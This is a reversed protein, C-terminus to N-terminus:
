LPFLETVKKIRYDFIGELQKRIFLWHVFRGIFGLPMRYSIIDTMEVGGEVEKFHHEHHWLKYPGQRQEDIFYDENRLAKIESIWGLPIRLIPRITYRIILGEYMEDPVATLVRFDIYDPTIVHLNAPASFFNWCTKLDTKIFQTRKLQYM